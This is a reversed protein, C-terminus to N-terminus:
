LLLLKLVTMPMILLFVSWEGFMRRFLPPLDVDDNASPESLTSSTAQLSTSSTFPRQRSGATDTSGGGRTFEFEEDTCMNVVYGDACYDFSTQAGFVTVEMNPLAFAGGRVSLCSTAAHKHQTSFSAGTGLLADTSGRSLGWPQFRTRKSCHAGIVKTPTSSVCLVVKLILIVFLLLPLRMGRRVSSPKCIRPLHVVMM